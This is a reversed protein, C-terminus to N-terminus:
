AAAQRHATIAGKPFRGAVDRETPAAFAGLPRIDLRTLLGVLEGCDDGPQDLEGIPLPALFEASGGAPVFTPAAPLPPPPSSVTPSGSRASSGPTPPCRKDVIRHNHPRPHAPAPV